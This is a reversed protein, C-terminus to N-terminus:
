TTRRRTRRRSRTARTASVRRGKGVAFNGNIDRVPVVPQMLINKGLIGDEAYGGPDDPIGGYHRELALSINEGFNLKGRNFATNVRVSGRKFDNYAATGDQDFYNFSVGYANDASGGTVDLNYDGVMAPGFVAEWWNTGASGPM